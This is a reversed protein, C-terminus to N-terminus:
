EVSGTNSFPMHHARFQALLDTSCVTMIQLFTLPSKISLM